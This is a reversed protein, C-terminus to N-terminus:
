IKSSWLFSLQEGTAKQGMWVVSHHCSVAKGVLRMKGLQVSHQWWMAANLSSALWYALVIQQDLHSGFEGTIVTIVYSSDPGGGTVPM